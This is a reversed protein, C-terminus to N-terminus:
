MSHSEEEWEGITPAPYPVLLGPLDYNRRMRLQEVSAEDDVHLRSNAIKTSNAPDETLCTALYIHVTRFVYVCGRSAVQGLWETCM